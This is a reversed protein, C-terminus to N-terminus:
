RVKLNEVLEDRIEERERLERSTEYDFRFSLVYEEKDVILESSEKENATIIEVAAGIPTEKERFSNIGLFTKQEELPYDSPGFNNIQSIVWEEANLHEPNDFVSHVVNKYEFSFDSNKRFGFLTVEEPEDVDDSLGIIEYGHIENVFSEEEDESEEEDIEEEVQENTTPGSEEDPLRMQWTTYILFGLFLVGISTGLIIKEEEDMNKIAPKALLYIKKVVRFIATGIKGIKKIIKQFM